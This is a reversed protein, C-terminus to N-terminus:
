MVSTKYPPTKLAFKRNEGRKKCSILNYNITKRTFIINEDAASLNTEWAATKTKDRLGGKWAQSGTSANRSSVVINLSDRSTM